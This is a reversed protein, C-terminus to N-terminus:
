AMSTVACASLHMQICHLRFHMSNLTMRQLVPIDFEIHEPIGTLRPNTQSTFCNEWANKGWTGGITYYYMLMLTVYRLGTFYNWNKMFTGTIGNLPPGGRYTYNFVNCNQKADQNHLVTAHIENRGPDLECIVLTGEYCLELPGQWLWVVVKRRFLGQGLRCKRAM